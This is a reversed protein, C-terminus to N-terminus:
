ITFNTRGVHDAEGQGGLAALTRCGLMLGRSAFM